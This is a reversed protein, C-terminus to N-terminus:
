GGYKGTQHTTEETIQYLQLHNVGIAQRNSYEDLKEILIAIGYTLIVTFTFCFLTESFELNIFSMLKKKMKILSQNKEM